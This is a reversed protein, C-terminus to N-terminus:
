DFKNALGIGIRNVKVISSYGNIGDFHLPIELTELFYQEIDLGRDAFFKRLKIRANSLANTCHYNFYLVDEFQDSIQYDSSCFDQKFSHFNWRYVLQFRVFLNISLSILEEMPLDINIDNFTHKEEEYELIRTCFKM